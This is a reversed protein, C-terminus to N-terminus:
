SCLINNKTNLDSFILAMYTSIAISQLVFICKTAKILPQSLKEKAKSEGVKVHNYFYSYLAHPRSFNLTLTADKRSPRLSVTFMILLETAITHYNTLNQIMSFFNLGNSNQM